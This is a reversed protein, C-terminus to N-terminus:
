HPVCGFEGPSIEVCAAGLWCTQDDVLNNLDNDLGDCVEASPLPDIPDVPSAPPTFPPEDDDDFYDGYDDYDTDDCVDIGAEAPNPYQYNGSWLGLIVRITWLARRVNILRLVLTRSCDPDDADTLGDNDNDIGDNCIHINPPINGPDTVACEDLAANLAECTGFIDGHFMVHLFAGISGTQITHAALPNGRPIHCLDVWSGFLFSWLSFHEVTARVMMGQPTEVLEGAGEEVWTQTLPNFYYINPADDGISLDEVPMEITATQGPGLNISEGNAYFELAVIGYTQYDALPPASLLAAPDAPLYTVNYDILGEVVTGDEYVFGNEPLVITTVEQVLTMGDAAQFSGVTDVAALTLEYNLPFVSEAVAQRYVELYGMSSVTLRFEGPSIERDFEGNSDTYGMLVEGHQEFELVAGVVPAGTQDLVRGTVLALEATTTNDIPSHAELEDNSTPAEEACGITLVPAMALLTAVM